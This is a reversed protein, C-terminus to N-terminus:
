LYPHQLMAYNLSRALIVCSSLHFLQYWFECESLSPFLFSILVFGSALYTYTWFWFVFFISSIDNPLFSLNTQLVTEWLQCWQCKHSSLERIARHYLIWKGICSVCTWDRPWSYRSSSSIAVWELIRAQLIWHVSSDSSSVTWPVAFLQVHSLLQACVYVCLIM